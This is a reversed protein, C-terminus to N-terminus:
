LPSFNFFARAHLPRLEPARVLAEEPLHQEAGLHRVQGFKRQLVHMRPVHRDDDAQLARPLTVDPLGHLLHRRIPLHTIKIGTRAIPSVHDTKNV